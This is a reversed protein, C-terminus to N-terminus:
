KMEKAVLERMENKFREKSFCEAHARIRLPDFRNMESEFREVAEILRESTQENFFIGSLGEVVTETAGGHNFAIVPKGASMAEVPVIGFDEVGPFILAKCRFYHDRIVPFSQRGLIHVNSKAQKRLVGLLEGEGIVVLRKGNRNFADVALDPRKYHTLQGVMLYFDEYGKGVMFDDVSVPPHIVTAERRYYKKIRGAVFMSNAVFKDVRDASIRDWMRLYHVLPPMLWRKLWSAEDRYDHYLDWVYRMPSHCYCIHQTDPSVVVGKSPGSESSIVLDYSRLDLQDLALPMLPLYSQYYRKAFPLKQIFTTKIRHAKLEESIESPEYVHCFLDAQPFLECLAEIVREGGRMGVFWYHIIAVRM